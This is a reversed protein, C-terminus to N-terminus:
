GRKRFPIVKGGDGSDGLMDLACRAADEDGHMYRLAMAPVKWGMVDMLSRLDLVKALETAVTHRITHFSIRDLRDRGENFGLKNVVNAFATPAENYPGGRSNLFVKDVPGTRQLESILEALPGSIPIRRSEANKTKEFIVHTSSVNRWELKFAEGARCGTLFAFKTIRWASFDKEHLLALIKETQELSIVALRRNSDGPGTVGIDKGTPPLQEVVGRTHCFKLFRRLTGTVYEITRSSKGADDLEAVLMDFESAGVLRVLVDGLLPQLWIRFHSDEKGWSSKKKNRSAHDLYTPWFESVTVDKAKEVELSRMEEVALERKQKLTQPFVGLLQNRKLEGLIRAADDARVGNSAWGLAETKTVGNYKYTITYYRDLRVGHRRIDHERYRVGPFKAKVWKTKSAM